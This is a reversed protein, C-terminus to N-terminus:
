CPRGCLELHAATGYGPQLAGAVDDVVAAIADSPDTAHRLQAALHRLVQESHYREPFFRRDLGNLSLLRGTKV